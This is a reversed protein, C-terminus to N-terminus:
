VRSAAPVDLGVLKLLRRARHAYTHEDLVRERARAGMAEAEGPDDLLQRYTALAEEASSVVLLEHGPEFWRDIGEYPNSVIAAGAAALEFPRATASATVTAHSRRTINLNIRAASIAHAFTNFPM